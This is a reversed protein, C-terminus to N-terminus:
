AELEKIVGARRRILGAIVERKTAAGRALEVSAEEWDQASREVRAVQLNLERLERTKNARTKEDM